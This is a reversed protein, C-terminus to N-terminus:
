QGSPGARTAGVVELTGDLFMRRCARRQIKGSSTKAITAPKILSVAYVQLGYENAVAARIAKVATPGQLHRLHTREVEQVVVLREEGNVDVSFAAGCGPRFGPYSEQVTKEIDQPYYNLGRIIIVDKIRGTVFLEGARIFGLDGTRLYPGEGTDALCAFMDKRLEDRNWYGKSVSAGAVWIEGIRGPPCRTLFEPDAIVIRTDLWPRGCGVLHKVRKTTADAEVIRHAELADADAAFYVPPDQVRGGSIILTAEAMGYCPYFCRLQFRCPRFTEAFRELTDRSVPEAGNYATVWSSLDLTARQEPTVRRTCLDYGFNPGGCHTARYRTIAQLWRVPAQLFAVPPLIVGLFGTYLPQLIGDVLGMDHFSPLWTVSVSEPTLEFSQRLYESNQLLNGHSVMVGRPAGTSGSTYQIFALTGPEAPPPHWGDALFAPLGDTAIWELAALEPDQSVLRELGALETSTTLAVTAELDAVINRLRDLSQKPRPASMPVAAVGAYLCGWFAAIFELGPPYLLLASGSPRELRRLRGAVVRAREDLARYTLSASETEGDALFLFATRDPQYVARRRLVDLVSSATRYPEAANM